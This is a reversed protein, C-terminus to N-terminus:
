EEPPRGTTAWHPRIITAGAKALRPSVGKKTLWEEVTENKTWTTKEDRDANSWFKDSAEILYKLPNSYNQNSISLVSNNQGKETSLEPEVVKFVNERELYVIHPKQQAFIKREWKIELKCYEADIKKIKREDVLRSFTSGASLLPRMTKVHYFTKYRRYKEEDYDNLRFIGTIEDDDCQIVNRIQIDVGPIWLYWRNGFGTFSVEVM